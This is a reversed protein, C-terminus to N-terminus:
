RRAALKRLTHESIDAFSEPLWGKKIAIERQEVSMRAYASKADKLRGPGKKTFWSKPILAKVVQPDEDSTDLAGIVMMKRLFNRLKAFTGGKKKKKRKETKKSPVPPFTNRYGDEM